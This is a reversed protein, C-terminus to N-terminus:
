LLKLGLYSVGWGWKWFSGYKPNCSYHVTVCILYIVSNSIISENKVTFKGIGLETDLEFHFCINLIKPFFSLIFINGFM